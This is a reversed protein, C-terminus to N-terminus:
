RLSADLMTPCQKKDITIKEGLCLAMFLLFFYGSGSYLLLSDSLNGVICILLIAYAIPKMQELEGSTQILSTLFFGLLIIGLLGFESAMLWYQSHPERLKDLWGHLPSKAYYYTFSATGNGIFPHQSFLKYAFKHFQLRFGINSDKQNHQYKYLQETIGNINQYMAPSALYSGYFLTCIIAIGTLSQRLTYKQLVLLTMLLFYLIYGTRSGNIYLVHYSFLIFLLAYIFRYYINKNDGMFLYSLYAAFSSMLGNIIHNRFVHEPNIQLFVLYNHYKLVSLGCTILMGLLFGHLGIQRASNYQFGVILLPFYLFKSYKQISFAQDAFKAPSWWCALMAVAFLMLAALCYKKTIIQWMEKLMLPSFLLMIISISFFISKLTSSLPLVLLTLGLVCSTYHQWKLNKLHNFGLIAEM